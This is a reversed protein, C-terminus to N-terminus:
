GSEELRLRRAVVDGAVAKLSRGAAFAHARLRVFAEDMSVGLQVSIMGTAQHVEAWGAGQLSLLAVTAVCVRRGAM